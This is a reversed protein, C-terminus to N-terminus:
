HHALQGAPHKDTLADCVTPQTSRIRCFPSPVGGNNQKGLLRIAVTINGHNMHKIFMRTTQDQQQSCTRRSTSIIEFQAQITRGERVIADIDGIKWITFCRQLCAIHEKTKRRAHPKQLMQIPLVMAAQLAISELSSGEGYTRFLSARTTMFSIKAKAAPSHFINCTWQIVEGYALIIPHTFSAGDIQDSWSFYPANVQQFSPLHPEERSSSFFYSSSSKYSNSPSPVLAIQPAPSQLLPMVNVTTPVQSPETSLSCVGILIDIRAANETVRVSETETETDDTARKHRTRM